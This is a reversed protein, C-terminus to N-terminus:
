GKIDSQIKQLCYMRKPYLVMMQLRKNLFTQFTDRSTTFGFQFTFNICILMKLAKLLKRYQGAGLHQCTQRPKICLRVLSMTSM